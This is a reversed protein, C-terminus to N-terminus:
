LSQQIASQLVSLTEDLMRQFNTHIDVESREFRDPFGENLEDIWKEEDLEYIYASVEAHSSGLSQGVYEHVENNGGQDSVFVPLGQSVAESVVNPYGEYLSPLVFLDAARYWEGMEKGGLRGLFRVRNEVGMKSAERKWGEISPGDGAACLIVSSDRLKPLLRIIFDINKWPVARVATFLVKRSGVDFQQRAEERNMGDPLATAANYIRTIREGPVDWQEVITKLFNSPVVVKKARKATWREIRELWRVEVHPHKVFEDLLKKKEPSGKQMYIEWAYDGVIKMVTPKGALMAGITGPFGESVPGQLYVLDANKALRRVALAYALYRRWTPQRRSIRVVPFKEDDRFEVDSYCVVAVEHGRGMLARAMARTYTAPGGADPPYIGTALLIKM